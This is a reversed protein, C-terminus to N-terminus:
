SATGAMTDAPPDPRHRQDMGRPSGQGLARPTSAHAGLNRFGDPGGPRDISGPARRRVPRFAGAPVHTGAARVDYRAHVRGAAAARGLEHQNRLMSRWLPLWQDCAASRTEVQSRIRSLRDSDVDRAGAQPSALRWAHDGAALSLTRLDPFHQYVSRKSCGAQKAIRAATPGNPHEKLLELYAEILRQRTRASRQRRGDTQRLQRNTM